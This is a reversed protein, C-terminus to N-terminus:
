VIWAPIRKTRVIRATDPFTVKQLPAFLLWFPRFAKRVEQGDEAAALASPRTGRETQLHKKFIMENTDM